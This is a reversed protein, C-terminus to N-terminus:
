HFPPAGVKGFEVLFNHTADSTQPTKVVEVLKMM